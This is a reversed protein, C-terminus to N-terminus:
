GDEAAPAMPAARPLATEAALAAPPVAAPTAGALHAVIGTADEGKVNGM